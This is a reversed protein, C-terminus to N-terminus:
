LILFTFTNRPTSPGQVAGTPCEETLHLTWCQLLASTKDETTLAVLSVM